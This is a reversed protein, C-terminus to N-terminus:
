KLKEAKRISARVANMAASRFASDELVNIGEITTGGPSTVEDKLAAPNKGTKLVMKGSGAVAQAAIKYALARPMGEAVAGDALAEIFLYAFAPTSGGLALAIDLQKEEVSVTIGLCSFIETVMNLKDPATLANACIATMGEGVSLPTNPATRILALPGKFQESFWDFSKGPSMAIFTKGARDVDRIEAIVKELIQPKVALFIMDSREAVERNDAALGIQLEEAIYKKTLESAASAILHARGVLKNEIMGNIIAKAMNGCGIFGIM